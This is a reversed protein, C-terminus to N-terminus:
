RIAADDLDAAQRRMSRRGGRSATTRTTPGKRRSPLTSSPCIDELVCQDCMPSRAVCVRRGHLIVRLSFPGRDTAPLLTNLDREIKVPDSEETLGLRRSVRNVHTDVALGPQEFAVSRIVNATKRGVGPVTVLDELRTPVEGGFRDVLADAMGIISKTKNQYFGTSRVIDEVDVPNAAALDAPAPYRAFLTPTVANVREDTTQASLVTATLLEFANRHDLECLDRPSGPYESELRRAVERARGKPTRPTAM